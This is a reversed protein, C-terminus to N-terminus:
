LRKEKKIEKKREKNRQGHALLSTYNTNQNERERMNQRM